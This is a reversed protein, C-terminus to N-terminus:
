RFEFVRNCYEFAYSGIQQILTQSFRQMISELNPSTGEMCTTFAAAGLKM